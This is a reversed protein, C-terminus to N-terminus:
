AMGAPDHADPMYVRNDGRDALSSRYLRRGLGGLWWGGVLAIQGLAIWDLWQWYRLEAQVVYGGTKLHFAYAFHLMIQILLTWGIMAQMRGAPRSLIIVATMVDVVISFFYPTPDRSVVWYVMHAAWNALLALTTRIMFRGETLLSVMLVVWLLGGYAWVSIGVASM